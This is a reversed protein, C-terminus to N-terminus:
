SIISEPSVKAKAFPFYYLKKEATYRFLECVCFVSECSRTPTNMTQEIPFNIAFKMGKRTGSFSFPVSIKVIFQSFINNKERKGEDRQPLLMPPLLL